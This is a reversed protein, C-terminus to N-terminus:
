CGGVGANGSARVEGGLFVRGALADVECMSLSANDQVILNRGIRTLSPFGLSALSDDSTIQVDQAVETVNRLADLDALDPNAEISLDGM